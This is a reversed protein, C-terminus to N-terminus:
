GRKGTFDEPVLSDNQELHEIVRQRTAQNVELGNGTFFGTVDAVEPFEGPFREDSRNVLLAM